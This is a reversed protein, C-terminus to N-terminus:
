WGGGVDGASVWPGDEHGCATCHRMTRAIGSGWQSTNDTHGAPIDIVEHEIGQEHCSTCWYTNCLGKEYGKMVFGAM